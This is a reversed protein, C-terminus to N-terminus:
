ARPQSKCAEMHIFLHGSIQSILERLSLEGSGLKSTDGLREQALLTERILVCAPDKSIALREVQGTRSNTGDEGTDSDIGLYIEFVELNAAILDLLAGTQVCTNARFQFEGLQLTPLVPALGAVKESPTKKILLSLRLLIVRWNRALLIYTTMLTAMLLLDNNQCGASSKLQSGTQRLDALGESINQDFLSVRLSDTESNITSYAALEKFIQSLRSTRSLACRIATEMAPFPMASESDSYIKNLEEGDDVLKINLASLDKLSSTAKSSTSASGRGSPESVSAPYNAAPDDIYTLHEFASPTFSAQSVHVQQKSRNSDAVPQTDFAFDAMAMDFDLGTDINNMNTGITGTYENHINTLLSPDNSHQNWPTTGTPDLNITDEPGGMPRQLSSPDLSTLISNSDWRPLEMQGSGAGILTTVCVANNKLCRECSDAGRSPRDCRLKYDRCRDCASRRSPKARQM